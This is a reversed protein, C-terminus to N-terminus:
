APGSPWPRSGSRAPALIAFLDLRICAFLTQSYVFGACLDFLARTNRRAIGRTLPFAAAWRQFAPNAITRNRFALWRERWPLARQRGGGM